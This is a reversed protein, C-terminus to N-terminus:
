DVYYHQAKDDVETTGRERNGGLSKKLTQIGRLKDEVQSACRIMEEVETANRLRTLRQLVWLSL